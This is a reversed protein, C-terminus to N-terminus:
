AKAAMWERELTRKPMGLMDAVEDMSRGGFSRMKAARTRRPSFKALAHLPEDLRARLSL